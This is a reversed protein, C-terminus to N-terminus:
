TAPQEVYHRPTGTQWYNVARYKKGQGGFDRYCVPCTPYAFHGSPLVPQGSGDCLKRKTM